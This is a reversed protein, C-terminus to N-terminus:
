KKDGGKGKLPNSPFDDSFLDTGKEGPDSFLDEKGKRETNEEYGRRIKRRREGDWVGLIIAGIGILLLLIWFPFPSRRHTPLVSVKAFHVTLYITSNSQVGPHSTSFQPVNSIVFSGNFERDNNGLISFHGTSEGGTLNWTKSENYHVVTFDIKSVVYGQPGTVTFNVYGAPWNWSASQNGLESFPISGTYNSIGSYNSFIVNIFSFKWSQNAPLGSANFYVGNSLVTLSVNVSVSAGYVTFSGQGYFNYFNSCAYYYTGNSLGFIEQSSGSSSRDFVQMGSVTSVYYGITMGAPLGPVNMSVGYGMEYETFNIPVQVSSNSLNMLYGSDTVVRGPLAFFATYTYNGPNLEITLNPSTATYQHMKMIAWTSGIFEETSVNLYWTGNKGTENFYVQVEGPAQTPASAYAPQVTATLPILTGALLIVTIVITAILVNKRMSTFVGKGKGERM